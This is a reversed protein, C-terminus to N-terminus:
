LRDLCRFYKKPGEGPVKPPRYLAAILPSFLTTATNPPPDMEDVRRFSSRLVERIGSLYPMNARGFNVILMGGTNTKDVIGRLIPM